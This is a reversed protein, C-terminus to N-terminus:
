RSVVIIFAHCLRSVYDCSIQIRIHFDFMCPPESTNSPQRGKLPTRHRYKATNQGLLLIITLNFSVQFYYSVLAPFVGFLNYYVM